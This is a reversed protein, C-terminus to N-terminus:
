PTTTSTTTSSSTTVPKPERSQARVKQATYTDGTRGGKVMAHDDKQIASVAVAQGNRKVSAGSAVTFTQTKGRLQRASGGKVVLTISDGSVATVIGVAVFRAKRRAQPGEKRAQAAAKRRAKAEERAEVQAKAPRAGQASKDRGREGDTNALSPAAAGLSLAVAVAAAAITRLRM